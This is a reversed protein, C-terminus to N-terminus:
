FHAFFGHVDYLDSDTMDVYYTRGINGYKLILAPGRWGQQGHASEGILKGVARNLPANMDRLADTSFWVQLPCDLPRKDHGFTVLIAAVPWAVLGSLRPAVRQGCLSEPIVSVDLYRMYREGIGAYLGQVTINATDSVVDVVAPSPHVPVRDLVALLSAQMEMSLVLMVTRMLEDNPVPANMLEVFVSPRIGRPTHEFWISLRFMWEQDDCVLCLYQEMRQVYGGGGMEWPSRSGAYSSPLPNEEEVRVDGDADLQSSAGGNDGGSPAGAPDVRDEPSNFSTQAQASM